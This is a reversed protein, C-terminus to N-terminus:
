NPLSQFLKEVGPHIALYNKALVSNEFFSLRLVHLLYQRSYTVRPRGYKKLVREYRWRQFFGPVSGKQHDAVLALGVESLAQLGDSLLDIRGSRLDESNRITEALAADVREWDQLMTVLEDAVSEETPKELFADVLRSFRRAELSEYALTKTFSCLTFPEDPIHGFIEPKYYKTLFDGSRFPYLFTPETVSVLTRLAAVDGGAGLTQLRATHRAKDGVGLVQMIETASGMRRYLDDIDATTTFVDPSWLREAIAMSRPWIVADLNEEDHMESWAAIEVGLLNATLAESSEGAVSLDTPDTRYHEEASRVHDLYFNTSLLVPHDLIKPTSDTTRWLHIVVENSLDDHLVEDWGIATKGFKKLITAYRLSFDAILNVPDEIGERQMYAKVEESQELAELQVEDGGMHIYPDPFLPLVESMLAEIFEYTSERTPDVPATFMSAAYLRQQRRPDIALEPYAIQWSRSHGPLGFEPVVRIGRDAAYEVLERMEEQRYYRGDSGIQHLKPYVLSELRFSQDDTFHLHLVNLKAFEMAELQRKIADIPIWHRVTDLLLGRWPFRPSDAIEVYPLCLQGNCDRVLQLLTSLGRVVGVWSPADIRIGASSVALKYSEDMDPQPYSGVQFPAIYLDYGERSSEPAMTLEHGSVESVNSVWRDLARTLRGMSAPASVTIKNSLSYWGASARVETPFPILEFDTTMRNQVDEEAIIQGPTLFIVLLVIRQWVSVAGEDVRKM